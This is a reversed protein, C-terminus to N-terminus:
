TVTLFNSWEVKLVFHPGFDGYQLGRQVCLKQLIAYEPYLIGKSINYVRQLSNIRLVFQTLESDSTINESNRKLLM